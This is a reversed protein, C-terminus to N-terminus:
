SAYHYSRSQPHRSCEDANEGALEPVPGPVAAAILVGLALSVALARLMSELQSVESGARRLWLWVAAALCVSTPAAAYLLRGTGGLVLAAGLGLVVITARALSAGSVSRLVLRTAIGAIAVALACVAFTAAFAQLRETGAAEALEEARTSILLGALGASWPLAFWVWSRTRRAARAFRELAVVASGAFLLTMANIGLAIAVILVLAVTGGAASLVDWLMAAFLTM